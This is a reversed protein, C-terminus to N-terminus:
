DVWDVVRLGEIRSFEDVNHTVLTLRHSVAVSAIVLDREGIPSHRLEQRLRAHEVAAASDFALRRLPALFATVDRARDTPANSRAAGYWLEAETMTAVAVNEPAHRRLHRLVAERRRLAFVCTDTDLLISM